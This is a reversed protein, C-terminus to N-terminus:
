ASHASPVGYVITATPGEDIGNYTHIQFSRKHACWEVIAAIEDGILIQIAPYDADNWSEAIIETGSGTPQRLQGTISPNLSPNMLSAEHENLRKLGTILKQYLAPRDALLIGAFGARRDQHDYNV